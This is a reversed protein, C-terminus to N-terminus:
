LIEDDWYGYPIAADDNKAAKDRGYLIEPPGENLTSNDALQPRTSETQGETGQTRVEGPLTPHLSTAFGGLIKAPPANVFPFDKM